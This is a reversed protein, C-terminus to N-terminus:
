RVKPSHIPTKKKARETESYSELIFYAYCLTIIIIWFNADYM